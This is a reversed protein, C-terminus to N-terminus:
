STEFPNQGASIVTWQVPIPPLGDTLGQATELLLPQDDIKFRTALGDTIRTVQLCPKQGLLANTNPCNSISAGLLDQQVLVRQEDVRLKVPGSPKPQITGGHVCQIVAQETIVKPM